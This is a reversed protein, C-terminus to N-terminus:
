NAHATMVTLRAASALCSQTHVTPDGPLFATLCHPCCRYECPGCCYDRIRGTLGKFAPRECGERKCTPHEANAM